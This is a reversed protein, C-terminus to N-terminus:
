TIPIPGSKSPPNRPIDKRWSLMSFSYSIYSCNLFMRQFGAPIWDRGTSYGVGPLEGQTPLRLAVPRLMCRWPGLRTISALFFIQRPLRRQPCLPPRASKAQQRPSETRGPDSIQAYGCSSEGPVQSIRITEMGKLGAPPGSSSGGPGRTPTQAAILIGAGTQRNQEEDHEAWVLACIIM